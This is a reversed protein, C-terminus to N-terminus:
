SLEELAGKPSLTLLSKAKPSWEIAVSSVAAKLPESWDKSAKSYQFVTIGSSSAAALYQGTYDWRVHSVAGGTELTKVQGMKRLDWIAIGSDGKSVSALWTGNESFALSQIPGPADFEAASNGTKVEFIKIQGDVGGAAFLSGDPHFSATTM